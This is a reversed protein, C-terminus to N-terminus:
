TTITLKYNKSIDTHRVKYTMTMFFQMSEGDHIVKFLHINEELFEVFNKNPFRWIEQKLPEYDALTLKYLLENKVLDEEDEKTLETIEVSAWGQSLLVSGELSVKSTNIKPSLSGMVDEIFDDSAMDLLLHNLEEECLGSIRDEFAKIELHKQYRMDQIIDGTEKILNSMIPELETLLKVMINYEKVNIKSDAKAKTYFALQKKIRRYQIVNSKQKDKLLYLSEEFTKISSM